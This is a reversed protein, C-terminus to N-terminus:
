IVAELARAEQILEIASDESWAVRSKNLVHPFLRSMSNRVTRTYVNMGVFVIMNLNPHTNKLANPIHIHANRPIRDVESVNLIFDVPMKANDIMHWLKENAEHFDTWTYPTIFTYCIVTKSPDAWHLNIPM